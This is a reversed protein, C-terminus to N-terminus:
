KAAGIRDAAEAAAKRTDEDAASDNAIQRLLAVHESAASGMGGLAMAAFQRTEANESRLRAAVEGIRGCQPAIFALEEAASWPANLSELEEFLVKEAAGRESPAIRWLAGALRARATMRTGALHEQIKPVASAAAEGMKGLAIVADERVPELKDDLAAILAAVADPGAAPGIGGLAAAAHRRVSVVGDNLRDILKPVAPAGVEGLEGIARCAWYQHHFNRSDLMRAIDDLAEGGAKGMGAVAFMAPITLDGDKTIEERLRTLGKAADPGIDHLAGCAATFVRPRSADLKAVLPDVAASGMRGVARSALIWVDDAGASETDEFHDILAPVARHAAPGIAGLANAAAGRLMADKSGLATTLADIARESGAGPKALARAAEIAEAGGKGLADIWEAIRTPDVPPEVGAGRASAEAAGRAEFLAAAVHPIARRRMSGGFAAAAFVAVISGVVLTSRM